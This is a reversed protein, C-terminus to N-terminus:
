ANSQSGPDDKSTQAAKRQRLIKGLREIEEANEEMAKEIREAQNRGTCFTLGEQKEAGRWLVGYRPM